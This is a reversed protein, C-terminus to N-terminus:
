RIIADIFIAGKFVLSKSVKNIEERVFIPFDEMGYPALTLVLMAYDGFALGTVTSKRGKQNQNQVLAEM